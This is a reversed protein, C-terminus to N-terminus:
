DLAHLPMAGNGPLEGIFAAPAARADGVALAAAFDGSVCIAGPPTAALIDLVLARVEGFLLTAGAFPDLAAIALGFHAAIRVAGSPALANRLTRAARAGDESADFALVVGDATWAASAAPTLGAGALAEAIAPLRAAIAADATGGSRGLAVAVMAALRLAGTPEAPADSSVPAEVALVHSRRAGDSWLAEARRGSAGSPEGGADGGVILQVAETQLMAARMAAGGMAVLDALERAPGVAGPASSAVERVSAAAALAANFRAAGDRDFGVVSRALFADRGGPLVVHLEAGRALLREAVLLDAGAALAGHGFGVNEADLVADIRAALADPDGGLRMRGAFHLSRPPRLADLWGADEGQEALIAGFQRLTSAHDEWARPQIAVAGALAQRAAAAEGALLLAEARTAGRWYPTDAAEGQEDLLALVERALGAARGPEGGILALTAANILPYTAPQLRAAAAYADAAARAGARRAAGSLALADDKLLRGKLSLVAADDAVSELGAARFLSWAHARAGARAFATIALLNASPYAFSTM